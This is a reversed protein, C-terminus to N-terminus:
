GMLNLTLYGSTVSTASLSKVWLKDTTALVLDLAVPGDGQNVIFKRVAAGASAGIGFELPEGSTYSLQIKQISFGIAAGSGVAVFAGASGNINVSTMNHFEAKLVDVASGSAGVNYTRLKTERTDGATVLSLAKRLGEIGHDQISM